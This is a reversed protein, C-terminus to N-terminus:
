INHAPIVNQQLQIEQFIQVSIDSEQPFFAKRFPLNELLQFEPFGPEGFIKAPAIDTHDVAKSRDDPMM